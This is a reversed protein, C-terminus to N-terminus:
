ACFRLSALSLPELQVCGAGSSMIVHQNEDDAGTDDPERDTAGGGARSMLDNNGLGFGLDAGSRRGAVAFDDM